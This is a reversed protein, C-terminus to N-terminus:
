LYITTYCYSFYILYYYSNTSFIKGTPLGSLSFGGPGQGFLPGPGGFPSVLGPAGAWNPHAAQYVAAAIASFPMPRILGGASQGLLNDRQFACEKALFLERQEKAALEVAASQSSEDEDLREDRIREDNDRLDEVDVISDEEQNSDDYEDDSSNPQQQSTSSEPTTISNHQSNPRTDALLSAVSFNSVQGGNKVVKQQQQPPSSTDMRQPQLPTNKIAKAESNYNINQITM